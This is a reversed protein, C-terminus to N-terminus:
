ERAEPDQAHEAVPPEPHEPALATEFAGFVEILMDLFEPSMHYTKSEPYLCEAKVRELTATMGVPATFCERAVTAIAIDRELVVAAARLEDENGLHEFLINLATTGNM